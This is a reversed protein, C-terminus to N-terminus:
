QLSGTVSLMNQVRMTGTTASAAFGYIRVELAGTASVTLAPTSPASTSIQVAHTFTDASTGVSANAPGTASASVDIAMM